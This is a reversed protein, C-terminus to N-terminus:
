YEIWAELLEYNESAHIYQWDMAEYLLELMELRAETLTGTNMDHGAKDRKARLEECEKELKELIEIKDKNPKTQCINWIQEKTMKAYKM